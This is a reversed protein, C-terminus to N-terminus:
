AHEDSILGVGVIQDLFGQNRDGADLNTPRVAFAALRDAIISEEAVPFLRAVPIRALTLATQRRVASDPVDTIFLSVGAHRDAGGVGVAVVHDEARSELSTIGRGPKAM